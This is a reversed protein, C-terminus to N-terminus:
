AGTEGCRRFAAAPCGIAAKYIEPQWLALLMM